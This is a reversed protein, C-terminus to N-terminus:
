PSVVKLAKGKIATLTVGLASKLIDLMNDVGYYVKRAYGTEFGIKGAAVSIKAVEERECMINAGHYGIPAIVWADTHDVTKDDVIQVPVGQIFGAVGGKMLSNWTAQDYSYQYRLSDELQVDVDTLSNMLIVFQTPNFGLGATEFTNRIQALGGLIQGYRTTQNYADTLAVAGKVIEAKIVSEIKLAIARMGRVRKEEISPAIFVDTRGGCDQPPCKCDELSEAFTLAKEAHITKGAALAYGITAECEPDSENVVAPAKWRFTTPQGVATRGLFNGFRTSQMLNFLPTMEMIGFDIYPDINEFLHTQLDRAPVFDGSGTGDALTGQGISTHLDPNTTAANKVVKSWAM